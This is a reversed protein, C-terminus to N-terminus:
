AWRAALMHIHLLSSLKGKICASITLDDDYCNKNTGTSDVDMGKIGGQM